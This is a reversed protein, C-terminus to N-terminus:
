NISVSTSDDVRLFGITDASKHVSTSDSLILRNNQNDMQSYGVITIIIAALVSIKLGILKASLFSAFFPIMANQKPASSVIKMQLHNMLRLKIAPDPEFRLKDNQILDNLTADIESM